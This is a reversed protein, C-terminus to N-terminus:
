KGAVHTAEERIPKAGEFTFSNAVVVTAVTAHRFLSAIPAGHRPCNKGLVTVALVM